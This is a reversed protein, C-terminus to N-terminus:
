ISSYDILKYMVEKHVEAIYASCGLIFEIVKQMASCALSSNCLLTCRGGCLFRCFCDRCTTNDMLSVIYGIENLNKSIGTQMHEACNFIDGEGDLVLYKIGASCHTLKKEKKSNLNVISMIEKFRKFEDVVSPYEADLHLKNKANNLTRVIFDYTLEDVQLSCSSNWSRLFEEVVCFPNDCNTNIVFDISTCKKDIKKFEIDECLHMVKQISHYTNRVEQTLETYYICELSIFNSHDYIQKPSIKSGLLRGNELEQVRKITEVIEKRSFREQLDKIIQKSSNHSYQLVEQFLENSALITSSQIDYCYSKNLFTFFHLDYM